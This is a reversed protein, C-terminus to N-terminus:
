KQSRAAIDAEVLERMIKARDRMIRFHELIRLVAAMIEDAPPEPHITFLPIPKEDYM